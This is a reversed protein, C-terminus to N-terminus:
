FKKLCMNEVLMWQLDMTVGLFVLSLLVLLTGLAVYSHKKICCIFPFGCSVLLIWVAAFGCFFAAKESQNHTAAYGYDKAYNTAPLSSLITLLAAVLGVVLMISVLVSGITSANNCHPEQKWHVFYTAITAINLM